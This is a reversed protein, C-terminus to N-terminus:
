NSNFNVGKAGGPGSSSGKKAPEDAPITPDPPAENGLLGGTSETHECVDAIDTMGYYPKGSGDQPVCSQTAGYSKGETAAHSLAKSKSKIADEVLSQARKDHAMGLKRIIYERTEPYVSRSYEAIMANVSDVNCMDFELMQAARHRIYACGHERLVRRYFEHQRKWTGFCRYEVLLRAQSPMDVKADMVYREAKDVTFQRNINMLTTLEKFSNQSDLTTPVKVPGTSPIADIISTMNACSPLASKAPASGPTPDPAPAASSAAAPAVFMPDSIVNSAAASSPAAASPVPAATSVPAAVPVAVAAPAAAAPKAPESSAAAAVPAAVADPPAAKAPRSEWIWISFFGWIVVLFFDFPRM